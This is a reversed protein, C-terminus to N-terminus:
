HHTQTLTKEERTEKKEGYSTKQKKALPDLYTGLIINKSCRVASAAGLSFIVIMIVAGLCELVIAECCADGRM